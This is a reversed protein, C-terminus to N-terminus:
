TPSPGSATERTVIAMLDSPVGATHRLVSERTFVTKWRSDERDHRDRM